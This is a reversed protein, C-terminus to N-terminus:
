HEHRHHAEPFHEHSHTTLEHRHRHRHSESSASAADHAHQHHEDHVHEHGHELVQHTHFHQHHETLHLWVGVGMALGAFVLRPTLPEGLLPLALAAGFFPAVSFYAGTRATGLSRLGVVFLALSVGYAAFGVAAAELVFPWRPLEAGASLALALNVSGAVLGKTSAIWSADNLSVRRTLNNDIAWALCAGLLALTPGVSALNLSTPWSLILAGVIIALMGLAVRRDVNERFLTWALLATFVSEANLMLSAGSAPMHMLGHMLLVPALVGGFVIAAALWRWENRALAAPEAKRLLRFIWLGLGSGLYFLGALLWPNVSGLLLKALPTGAGFLAAAGLAALVGPKGLTALNMMPINDRPLL